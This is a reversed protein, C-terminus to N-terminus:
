VSRSTPGVKVMNNGSDCLFDRGEHTGVTISKKGPSPVPHGAHLAPASSLPLLHQLRLSASLSDCNRQSYPAYRYQMSLFIQGHEHAQRNHQRLVLTLFSLTLLSAWTDPNLQKWFLFRACVPFRRCLFAPAQKGHLAATRLARRLYRAPQLLYWCTGM